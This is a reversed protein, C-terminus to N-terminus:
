GGKNKILDWFAQVDGVPKGTQHDTQTYKWTIKGYDFAVEELPLTQDQDTNAGRTIQAVIVDQLTYEMYPTKEGTARCLQLKVEALHEGNCCALALKPSAKDLVKLIVLPKHTCRCAAAAGGTSREGGSVQRMALRYRLVEVWDKHKEDTSEGPITSIRLFADFAM